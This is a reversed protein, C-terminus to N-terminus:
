ASPLLGWAALLTPVAFLVAGLVVPAGVSGVVAHRRLLRHRRSYSAALVGFGAAFVVFFLLYGVDAATLETGGGAIGSAIAVGEVAAGLSYVGLTAFAAWLLVGLRTPRIVRQRSTVSLLALGAGILKLGAVLGNMVAMGVPYDAAYRAYRPGAFSGTTELLVNVAAFAVCCVVVLAAVTTVPASAGGPATGRRVDVAGPGAAPEGRPAGTM